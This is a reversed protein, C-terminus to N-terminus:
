RDTLGPQYRSWITLYPPAILKYHEWSGPEPDEEQTRHESFNLILFDHGVLGNIFTSMTHRFERPGPVAVQSGDPRDVTWNPSGFVTELDIEGDQYPTDMSYGLGPTYREDNLTQTFSNAWMVRYLGGPRLVRAVESFVPEVSPVFNISYPQWVIDFSDDEFRSLDRMDGQEISLDVAHHEAAKRDNALQEDSLDFVTTRAGLLAFAVSQQGGGGGLILASKGEVEGLIEEEDIVERARKQDLELYPRSYLVGARVLENWRDRNLNSLSDM